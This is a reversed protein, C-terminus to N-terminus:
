FTPYGRGPSVGAGEHGLVAPLKGNLDGNMYHLDSHCVGAAQIRIRVEGRSPPDLKVDEIRLPTRAEFLVAAKM